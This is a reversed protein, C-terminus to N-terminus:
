VRERCSARGIQLHCPHVWPPRCDALNNTGVFSGDDDIDDVLQMGLPHFSVYRGAVQDDIFLVNNNQNKNLDNGNDILPNPLKLPNAIPTLLNTLKVQLCDGAAVRLVLPRPRKDPRLAINGAITSMDANSKKLPTNPPIPNGYMDEPDVDVLVPNDYEDLVPYGDEDLVPDKRDKDVVVVDRELAYVMWNVNQAGLRNFMISQDIAVVNATVTNGPCTGPAGAEASPAYTLSGVAMLGGVLSLFILKLNTVSRNVNNM